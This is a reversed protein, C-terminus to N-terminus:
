ETLNSECSTSEASSPQSPQSLQQSPVLGRSIFICCLIIGVIWIGVYLRDKGTEMM